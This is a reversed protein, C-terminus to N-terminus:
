IRYVASMRQIEKILTDRLEVPKLVEIHNASQLLYDLLDESNKVGAISVQIFRHFQAFEIKYNKFRQIMKEFIKNNGLYVRLELNIINKNNLKLPDNEHWIKDKFSNMIEKIEKSCHCTKLESIRDLRYYKLEFDNDKNFQYGVVYILDDKLDINTPYLLITDQNTIDILENNIMNYELGKFNLCAFNDIANIVLKLNNYIIDSNAILDNNEILHYHNIRYVSSDALVKDILNPGNEFYKVKNLLKALIILQADSYFPKEVFSGKKQKTVYNIKGGSTGKLPHILCDQHENIIHDFAKISEIDSKITNGSVSASIGNIKDILEERSLAHNEDTLRKLLYQILLIRTGNSIEGM